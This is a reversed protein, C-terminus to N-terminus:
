IGFLTFLVLAAGLAKLGWDLRRLTQVESRPLRDLDGRALPHLSSEGSSRWSTMNLAFLSPFFGLGPGIRAQVLAEAVTTSSAGGQGAADREQRDMEGQVRRSENAQAERARERRDDAVAEEAAIKGLAAGVALWAELAGRSGAAHGATQNPGECPACPRRESLQAVLDVASTGLDNRQTVRAGADMLDEALSLRGAQLLLLLPTNGDEDRVDLDAGAEVFAALGLATLGGGGVGGGGGGGVGGGGGFTLALGAEEDQAAANAGPVEPLAADRAADQAADQAADRAATCATTCAALLQAGITRRYKQIMSKLLRNPTLRNSRESLVENTVPSRRRGTSFWREMAVREYTFGDEALVPDVMLEQTIPCIMEKPPPPPYGQGTQPESTLTRFLTGEEAM